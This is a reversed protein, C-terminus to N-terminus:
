YRNNTRPLMSELNNSLRLKFKEAYNTKPMNVTSPRESKQNEKHAINMKEYNLPELRQKRTLKPEVANHSFTKHSSTSILYNENQHFNQNKHPSMKREIQEKGYDISGHTRFTDSSVTQIENQMSFTKKLTKLVKTNSIDLQSKRTQNSIKEKFDQHWWDQLENKLLEM